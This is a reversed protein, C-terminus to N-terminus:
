GGNITPQAERAAKRARSQALWEARPIGTRPNSPDPQRTIGQDCWQQAVPLDPRKPSRSPIHERYELEGRCRYCRSTAAMTSGCSLCRADLRGQQWAKKLDPSAEVEARTYTV